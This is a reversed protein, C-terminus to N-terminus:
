YYFSSITKRGGTLCCRCKMLGIIKGQMQGNVKHQLLFHLLVNENKVM